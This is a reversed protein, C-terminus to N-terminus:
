EAAYARWGHARRWAHPPAGYSRHFLRTLHPQDSLGCALAIDSISQDTETLLQRARELRLAIVYRSFSQGFAKKFARSFHSCSVGILGAAEKLRLPAELRAEIHAKLRNVQWPALGGRHISPPPEGGVMRLASVIKSRVGHQEPPLDGLVDALLAALGPSPGNPTETFDTAPQM